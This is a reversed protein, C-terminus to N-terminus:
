LNHITAVKDGLIHLAAGREVADSQSTESFLNGVWRGFRGVQQGASIAAQYMRIVRGIAWLFFWIFWVVVVIVGIVKM